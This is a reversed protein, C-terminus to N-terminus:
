SVGTSGFGGVRSTNQEPQITTEEIFYDLTKILEGQAIREDHRIRITDASSNFLMVFTQHYYDSDIVGEANGLMLGQKLSISSRPHIRVSYGEPIDFILGTPVLMREAPFLEVGMYFNGSTRDDAWIKVEREEKKNGMTYVVVKPKPNGHVYEEKNGFYSYIDFCASGSTAFEPAKVDEYLKFYSLKSM